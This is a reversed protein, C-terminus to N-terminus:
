YRIKYILAKMYHQTTITLPPTLRIYSKHQGNPANLLLGKKFCEYVIKKAFLESPNGDKTIHIGGVMGLYEMRSINKSAQKIRTIEKGFVLRADRFDKQFNKSELFEINTLAQQKKLLANFLTSKGVNPLGVIGVSLNM